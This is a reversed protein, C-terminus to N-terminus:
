KGACDHGSLEDGGNCDENQSWSKAGVGIVMVVDLPCGHYFVYETEPHEFFVVSRPMLTGTLSTDLAGWASANFLVVGGLVELSMESTTRAFSDFDDWVANPVGYDDNNVYRTVSAVAVHYDPFRLITPM